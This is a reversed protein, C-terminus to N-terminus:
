ITTRKGILEVIKVKDKNIKREIYQYPQKRYISAEYLDKKWYLKDKEYDFEDFKEFSIEYDNINLGNYRKKNIEVNEKINVIIAEDPINYKNLEEETFDVNLIINSRKLSKKKNNSITIIIGSEELIEKELKKFKEIHATVINVNKYKKSIQKINEMVYDCINENVLVSVNTEKKELNRKEVIYDLVKDSLVLFLWRGNIVNIKYMNILNMFEEQKKLYKSLIITKCNTKELIKKIKKVIIAGKKNDIIEKDCVPLIIKDGVLEVLNLVKTILVPKDSEQIYYM